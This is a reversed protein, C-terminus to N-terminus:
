PKKAVLGIMNKNSPTDRKNDKDILEEPGISHYFYGMISFIVCVVFILAAFLVFEAWQELPAAQAIILVIVNGFAVTLLWGAQVVSKMSNPAQSYSFSLGTISFIVEGASILLYQPIQWAVHVNNAPIDEIKWAELLNISMNRTILVTYSAGFDLLGLHLISEEAETRCKVNNYRGREVIRYNSASYSRVFEEKGLTINVDQALTNIFRYPFKVKDHCFIFVSFYHKLSKALPM